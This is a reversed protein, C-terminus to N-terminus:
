TAEGEEVADAEAHSHAEFATGYWEIRLDEHVYSTTDRDFIWFAWGCKGAASNENGDEVLRYGEVEWGPEVHDLWAEIAARAAEESPRRSASRQVERRPADGRIRKTM